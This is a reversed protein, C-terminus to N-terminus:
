GEKDVLTGAPAPSGAYSAAARRLERLLGFGELVRGRLREVAAHSRRALELLEEVSEELDPEAAGARNLCTSLEEIDSECARRRGTLAELRVVDGAAAAALEEEYFSRLRAAISRATRARTEDTM